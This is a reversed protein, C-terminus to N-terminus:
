LMIEQPPKTTGMAYCIACESTSTLYILNTDHMPTSLKDQVWDKEQSYFERFPGYLGYTIEPHGELAKHARVRCGYRRTNCPFKNTGMECKWSNLSRNKRDTLADMM